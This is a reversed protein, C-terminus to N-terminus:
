KSGGTKAQADSGGNQQREVSNFNLNLDWDRASLASLRWSARLPKFVASSGESNDNTSSSGFSCVAFQEEDEDEDKDDEDDEDGDDIDIDEGKEKTQQSQKRRTTTSTKKKGKGHKNAVSRVVRKSRRWVRRVITMPRTICVSIIVLVISAVFDLIMGSLVLWPRVGGGRRVGQGEGNGFSGYWSSNSERRVHALRLDDVRGDLETLHREHDYVLREHDRLSEGLRALTLDQANIKEHILQHLLMVQHQVSQETSPPPPCTTTVNQEDVIPEISPQSRQERVSVKLYKNRELGTVDLDQVNDLNPEPESEVGVEDQHHHHNHHRNDIATGGSKRREDKEETDDESDDDEKTNVARRDRPVSLSALEALTSSSFSRLSPPAFTEFFDDMDELSVVGVDNTMTTKNKKTKRKNSLLKGGEVGLAEERHHHHHHHHQVKNHATVFQDHVSQFRRRAM